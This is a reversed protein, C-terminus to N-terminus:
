RVIGVYGTIPSRGNKPEIIYYYTGIPLQKGNFSGDWPKTYGTSTFVKQGYINFVEVICGAYTDLFEIDWKDNIGDGNPSFANPVRPGKLVKVFVIDTATCNKDSTVRLTYTIDDLATSIPQPITTSSLWTNPSWLYTVNNTTSSGLLTTNGGELVTRDVGANVDPTPNVMVTQEKFDSCGNTATFTYRILQPGVGATLPNFLNGVIGTGSFIGVGAIGTLEQAQTLTAAPNEQCIDPIPAFSVTPSGLITVTKTVANVCIGGSYAVFRITFTKTPPTGFDPYDYNYLKGPTPNQDTTKLLPNNAWDWYIEVKTLAGFDVTSTNQITIEKNSCLTTPNQILFNAVPISGNVTFVTDKRTTCGKNSTVELWMNYNAAVTYKHTPNKLTSTNPNPITANADGFNWKYTFQSETGDAIISSDLFQATPDSLCIEPLYMKIEPNPNIIVPKVVATNTCGKDTTVLLSVNFTNTTTYTHTHPGVTNVIASGDGFDWTWSNVVGDNAISTNTFTVNKDVCQPTSFTFNPTPLANVYITKLMTDSICGQDTKIFHRITKTGNAAFTNTLTNTGLVFTGNGNDWYNDVITGGNGTSTSTFTISTNVCVEPANTFSATPRPRINSFIKTTDHICGNSSTAQLKVNFPGAATYNHIGNITNTTPTADGFNWVYTTAPLTGDAITTTNTFLTAGIPLCVNAPLDFNAVPKPKVIVPIAISTNFCGKDTKVKLTVNYTTATAYTHTLPNGNTLVQIPTGDGFDWTWEVINGNNAISTNTFTIADKECKLASTTFNATPLQNVFVTKSSTDSICGNSTKIYHRITKNGITAFSTTLAATGLVFTGSGNDWYNETITGNIPNSTSTFTINDNLCVELNSTFSAAPQAYINSLVQISDDICGIASTAVLKVNYPGTGAYIHSPSTATSTASADGFSWVYTVTPLTGDTITTNNTFQAFGSPLCIGGPLIFSAIPTATITIPLSFTDADCGKDTKVILKVTYTGDLTYTHQIPNGNTATVIPTADGFNWVWSTIIGDAATSTNNFTIPTRACRGLNSFNFNAIPSANVYISKTMTDSNCGQDTVIWHKITKAGSSAWKKKPNQLTSTTADGFDWNYTIINGGNGISTSTFQLSDKICVEIGNTFSATPRPRVNNFIITTDHICGNNSTAQLNVNFPGVASYNHIGNLTTTTPTADGFNWVYTTSPLTGDSITTTNTFLAAGVPLCVNAPLTFDAKPKAYITIPIIKPLSKCGGLAIVTHTINFPGSTTYTHTVPGPTLLTDAPSGDGWNWAYKELTGVTITATSTFSLTSGVCTPTPLSFNAVPLSSINITKTLTDSLCGVDTIVQLKIPFSGGLNYLKKPNKVSDITNDHYLWRWKYVDRGGTVTSNEKFYVTDTACGTHTWNFDAVPSDFVELSFDIEQIGSCGDATPNNVIITLPYSGAATVIYPTPNKYRYVWKGNVLVSDVLITSPINQIYNAFPLGSGTFDWTISLPKYPLKQYFYFPSNKCAAAFTLSTDALSNNTSAYQYLDKVNSGASYGYSETQGLGYCIANFGSDAQLRFSSSQVPTFTYKLYSYSPNGPMPFFNSAGVFSGNIKFSATATTKILVNMFQQAISQKTSTFITIDDINQEIPNLIIMDPDGNTPNSGNCNQSLLYQAVCIPKDGSIFIPQTQPAVNQAISPYVEGKNLFVNVGNYNVTTNDESAMVRAQYGSPNNEIPVVGFSKGWTSVPYCQQNLPDFSGGSCGTRSLSLASSGSFVAIKKCTVGNVSISEIESGTLDQGDQVQYVQGANPITVNFPVGSLVGNKRLQIKVITNNEVAIIEFQSKSVGTSAQYYSIAQYKRNLVNTPLVLTAETRFGAYIHAYVVVAPKGLDTKILIGKNVPSNSEAETIYAASRLIPVEVVTNANVAFTQNQGNYSVTGTSNKDSTIFLSMEALSTGSPVHSPFCVYFEKGKNSFDQAKLASFCATFLIFIYLKRM